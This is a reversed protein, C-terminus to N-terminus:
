VGADLPERSVLRLRVGIVTEGNNKWRWDNLADSSLAWVDWVIGDAGNPWGDLKHSFHQRINQVWQTYTNMGALRINWDRDVILLDVNYYIDDDHNTGGSPPNEQGRYVILIGPMEEVLHGIEYDQERLGIKRIVISTTAIADVENDSSTLTVNSQLESQITTLCTYLVNAM